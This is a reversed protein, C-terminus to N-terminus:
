RPDEPANALKEAMAHFKWGRKVARPDNRLTGSLVLINGAHQYEAIYFDREALVHPPFNLFFLLAIM